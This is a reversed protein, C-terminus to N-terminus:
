VKPDGVMGQVPAVAQFVEIECVHDEKTKAIELHLSPDEQALLTFGAIDEVETPDVEVWRGIKNVELDLAVTRKQSREGRGAKRIGNPNRDLRRQSIEVLRLNRREKSVLHHRFGDALQHCISTRWERTSCRGFKM